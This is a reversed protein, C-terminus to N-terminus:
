SNPLRSPCPWAQLPFTPLAESISVKINKQMNLLLPPHSWHTPSHGMRRGRGDEEPERRARWCARALRGELPSGDWLRPRPLPEGAARVGGAGHDDHEMM